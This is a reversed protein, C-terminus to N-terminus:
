LYWLKEQLLLLGKPCLRIFVLNFYIASGVTFHGDLCLRDPLAGVLIAFELAFCVVLDYMLALM